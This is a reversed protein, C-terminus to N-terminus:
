FVWVLPRRTQRAMDLVAAFLEAAAARRRVLATIEAPMAPLMDLLPGLPLPTILPECAGWAWDAVGGGARQAARLLRTKGMGADGELLVCRGQGRALAALDARLGALEADRELLPPEPQPM